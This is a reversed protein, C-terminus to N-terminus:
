GKKYVANNEKILVELLKCIEIVEKSPIVLKGWKKLNLLASNSHETTLLGECTSCKIKKIIQKVVFGAIYGIVHEKYLSLKVDNYCYNHDGEAIIISNIDDILSDKTAIRTGVYLLQTADMPMCNGNKAKIQHQGLLRRYANQFKEKILEFNRSCLGRNLERKSALHKANLIDFVDNMVLCFNATAQCNQFREINLEKCFLLATSVSRSLTQVALSVKMKENQFKIHRATLKTGAQLGERAQLKEIGEIYKWEIPNGNPDYLINRDGLTNRVLKVMHCADWFTHVEMNNFQFSPKLDPFQYQTGLENCMAINVAAGDFTISRCQCGSEEILQLCKLLNAREPIAEDKNDHDGDHESGMGLDVYGYFRGNSYEVLERISMKEIVLNIIINKDQKVQMKLANFSEKSFGPSGDIVMYWERLTDPHPLLNNFEERVFNYARPSYYHLTLAFARLEPTFKANRAVLQRELINKLSDPTSDMIAASAEDSLLRRQKLDEVLDKLSLIQKELKKKDENLIKCKKKQQTVVQKVFELNRKAKRPTSFHDPRLNGVYRPTKPSLSSKTNEPLQKIGEDQNRSDTSLSTNTDIISSQANPQIVSCSPGSDVEM